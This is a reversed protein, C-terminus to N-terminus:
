LKFTLYIIFNIGERGNISRLVLCYYLSDVFSWNENKAFFITGIILVISIHLIPYLIRRIYITKKSLEEPINLTLKSKLIIDKIDRVDNIIFSSLLNILILLGILIYFLIYIKLTYYSSLINKSATLLSTIISISNIFSYNENYYFLLLGLLYYCLIPFYLQFLNNQIIINIFSNM